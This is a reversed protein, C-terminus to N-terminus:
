RARQSIEMKLLFIVDVTGHNENSLGFQNKSQRRLCQLTGHQSVTTDEMQGKVESLPVM